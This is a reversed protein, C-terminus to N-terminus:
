HSISYKNLQPDKNVLEFAANRALSLMQADKCYQSTPFGPLEPNVHAGLFEGPGRIRFGSRSSQFWRRNAGNGYSTRRLDKVAYGLVLVCYSKHERAWGAGQTSAISKTRFQESHEVIMMNCKPVDVGVEIVTTAVLVDLERQRFQNM